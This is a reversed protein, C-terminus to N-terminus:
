ITHNDKKFFIKNLSEMGNGFFISLYVLCPAFYRTNGVWGTLIIFYFISFFILWISKDEKNKLM